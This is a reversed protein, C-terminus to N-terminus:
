LVKLILAIYITIILMIQSLHRQVVIIIYKLNLLKLLMKM